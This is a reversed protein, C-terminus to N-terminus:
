IHQTDMVVLLGIDSELITSGSASSGFLIIREPKFRTVIDDIFKRIENQTVERM